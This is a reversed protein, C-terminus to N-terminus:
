LLFKGQPHWASQLHDVAVARSYGAITWSEQGARRYAWQGPCRVSRAVWGLPQKGGGRETVRHAKHGDGQLLTSRSVMVAKPDNLTSV